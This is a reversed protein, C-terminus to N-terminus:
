SGRGPRHRFVQAQDVQVGLGVAALLIASITWWGAPFPRELALFSGPPSTLLWFVAASGGYVIVALGVAVFRHTARM